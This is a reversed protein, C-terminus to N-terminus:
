YKSKKLKISINNVLYGKLDFIFAIWRRVWLLIENQILCAKIIVFPCLHRFLNIEVHITNLTVM